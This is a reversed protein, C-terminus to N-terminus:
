LIELSSLYVFDEFSINSYFLEYIRQNTNYQRIAIKSNDLGYLSKICKNFGIYWILEYDFTKAIELDEENVFSFYENGLIKVYKLPFKISKM